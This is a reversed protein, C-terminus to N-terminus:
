GVILLKEDVDHRSCDLNCHFSSSM